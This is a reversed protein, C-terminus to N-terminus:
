NLKFRALLSEIDIVMEKKVHEKSEFSNVQTYVRMGNGIVVGYGIAKLTQYLGILDVQKLDSMGIFYSITCM